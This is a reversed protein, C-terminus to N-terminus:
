FITSQRPSALRVDGKGLGCVLLSICVLAGFVLFGGMTLAMGLLTEFTEVTLAVGVGLIGSLILITPVRSAFQLPLQSTSPSIFNGKIHSHHAEVFCIVFCIALSIALLEIVM